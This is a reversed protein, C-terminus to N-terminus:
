QKKNVNMRIETIKIALPTRSMTYINTYVKGCLLIRGM